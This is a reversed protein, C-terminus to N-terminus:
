NRSFVAPYLNIDSSALAGFGSNLMRVIDASENSVITKRKKDWLVPVTTRGTYYPDADYLTSAAM